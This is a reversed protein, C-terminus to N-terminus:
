SRIHVLLWYANTTNQVDPMDNHIVDLSQLTSVRRTEIKSITAFNLYALLLCLFSFTTLFFLRFFRIM